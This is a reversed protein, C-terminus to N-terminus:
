KKSQADVVQPTMFETTTWQKDLLNVYNYHIKDNKDFKGNKNTDEVARFYLRNKSEIVKWDLVEQVDTSIKTFNAGSIDSLYLSKIDNADMKNDANTDSDEVFYVLIQKKTKQAISQLYDVTQIMMPKQTLSVISDSDTKQFKLNQLYGTIQNEMNNAVNFNTNENGRSSAYKSDSYDAINLNGVPFILYDTNEFQVPLGSVYIKSTDQVQEAQKKDAKKYSVKPMEADEKCSFFLVILCIALIKFIIKM